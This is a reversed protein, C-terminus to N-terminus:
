TPEVIAAERSAGYAMPFPLGAGVAAPRPQVLGQHLKLLGDESQSPLLAADRWCNVNWRPLFAKACRTTMRRAWSAWRRGRAPGERCRNSAQGETGIGRM